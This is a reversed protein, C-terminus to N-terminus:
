DVFFGPVTYYLVSGVLKGVALATVFYKIGKKLRGRRALIPIVDLVEALSVALCGYFVGTLLMLFMAAPVGIPLYWNYMLYLTGSIGGIIIGTEYTRIKEKTGTKQAIRPVVGIIAIFAFVAGAIVVGSGFGLTIFILIKIIEM